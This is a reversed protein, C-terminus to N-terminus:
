CDFCVSLVYVDCQVDCVCRVSFATCLLLIWVCLTYLVFYVVVCCGYCWVDLAVCAGTCCACHISCLGRVLVGYCLGHVRVCVCRTFVLLNVYCVLAALCFFFGGVDGPVVSFLCVGVCVVCLM